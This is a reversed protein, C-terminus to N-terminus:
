MFAMESLRRSEEDEIMHTQFQITGATHMTPAAARRPRPAVGPRRGQAPVAYATPPFSPSPPLRAADFVGKRAAEPQSASPVVTSRPRKAGLGGTFARRLNSMSSSARATASGQSSDSSKKGFLSFSRRNAQAQAAQEASQLRPPRPRAPAVPMEEAFVDRAETGLEESDSDTEEISSQMIGGAGKGVARARCSRESSHVSPGRSLSADRACTATTPTPLSSEAGSSSATRTPSLAPLARSEGSSNTSATSNAHALRRPLAQETTSAGPSLQRGRPPTPTPTASPSPLAHADLSPRSDSASTSADSDSPATLAVAVVQPGAGKADVDKESSPRPPAIVIPPPKEKRPRARVTGAPSAAQPTEAADIDLTLSPPQSASEPTPNLSTSDSASPPTPADTSSRLWRTVKDAVPSDPQDNSTAADPEVNCDVDNPTTPVTCFDEITPEVPSVIEVAAPAVVFTAQSPSRHGIPGDRSARRMADDSRTQGAPLVGPRPQPAQSEDRSSEQSNRALWAERIKKAESEAEADTPEHEEVVVAYRRDLEAEQESLPITPLLGRARLAARRQEVSTFDNPPAAPVPAKPLSLYRLGPRRKQSVSRNPPSSASASSRPQTPASSVRLKSTFRKLMSTGADPQMQTQTRTRPMTASLPTLLPTLVVNFWPSAPSPVIVQWLVAPQPAMPADTTADANLEYSWFKRTGTASQEGSKDRRPGGPLTRAPDTTESSLNLAESRLHVSQRLSARKTSAARAPSPKNRGVSFPSFRAKPRSPPPAM